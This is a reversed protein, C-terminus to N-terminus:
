VMVVVMGMLMAVEGDDVVGKASGLILGNGALLVVFEYGRPNSGYSVRFHESKAVGPGLGAHM